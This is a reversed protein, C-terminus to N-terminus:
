KEMIELDVVCEFYALFVEYFIDRSETTGLTAGFQACVIAITLIM